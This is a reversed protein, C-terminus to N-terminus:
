VTPADANSPAEAAKAASRAPSARKAGDFAIRDRRISISISDGADFHGDIILEALPAEVETKIIRRLERAGYEASFGRAAIWAELRPSFRLKLGTAGLYEAVDHLQLRAIRECDKQSLQNFVIVDDLRNVFEPPFCEKVAALIADEQDQKELSTRRASDFGCRNRVNEVEKVGLNSTLLVLTNDFRVTNGKGDTLTGEDMLQLLLNHIKNNAKEIEDFLVVCSKKNKVAETLYGGENHGIYGPPAGILKAYEHPLAFESCDIRVLNTTRGFLHKALVKALETKGSGTTGVLLFVGIPKKPDKLGVAAKKVAKCVTMVADNQGVVKGMLAREIGIVKERLQARLRVADDQEAQGEGGVPLSVQHIELHPNVEVCIQYLVDELAEPKYIRNFKKFLPLVAEGYDVITSEVVTRQYARRNTVQDAKVHQAIDEDSFVRVKIFEDIVECYKLVVQNENRGAM